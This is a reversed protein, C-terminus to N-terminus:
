PDAVTKTWLTTVTGGIVIDVNDAKLNEIDLDWAPIDKVAIGRAKLAERFGTTVLDSVTGQAVLDKEFEGTETVREGVLSPRKGRGDQFPSLGMVVKPAALALGQPVDYAAGVLIQGTPTACASLAIMILVAIAFAVNKCSKVDM